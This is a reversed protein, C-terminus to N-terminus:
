VTRYFLQGGGCYQIQKSNVCYTLVSCTHKISMKTQAVPILFLKHLLKRVQSVPETMCVSTWIGSLTQRGSVTVGQDTTWSAWLRPIIGM